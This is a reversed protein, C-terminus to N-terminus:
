AGKLSFEWDSSTIRLREFVYDMKEEDTEYELDKYKDYIAYSIIENCSEKFKDNNETAGQILSIPVNIYISGM